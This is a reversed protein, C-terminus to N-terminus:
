DTIVPENVVIKFAVARRSREKGERGYKDRGQRLMLENLLSAAQLRTLPRLSKSFSSEPNQVWNM